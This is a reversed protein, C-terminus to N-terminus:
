YILRCQIFFRVEGTKEEGTSADYYSETRGYRQSFNIYDKFWFELTRKRSNLSYTGSITTGSMGIFYDLESQAYECDFLDASHFTTGIDSTGNPRFYIFTEIVIERYEAPNDTFFLPLECSWTQSIENYTSNFNTITFKDENKLVHSNEFNYGGINM